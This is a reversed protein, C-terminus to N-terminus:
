TGICEARAPESPSRRSTMGFPVRRAGFVALAIGSLVVVGAAALRLTVRKGLVVRLKSGHPGRGNRRRASRARRGSTRSIAGATGLAACSVHVAVDVVFAGPRM